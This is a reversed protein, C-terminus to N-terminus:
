AGPAAGGARERFDALLRLTVPGPRGAGIRHEVEGAAVAVVPVLERTTSTIFVEDAGLLDAPLLHAERVPLGARRALSLVVQRTVGELIGVELPPTVLGGGRVAFVNATTAETIRGAGDLMLAEYAARARAERLALVRSLYNGTKAAPDVSERPAHRAEVLAVKVGQRYAEPPPPVLEKAIIVVRGDQALAPDLGLEGSGRTVIVRVYSEPNGAAALTRRTEAAVRELSWPLSLAILEASRALRALHALIEFPEGRYTRMVEYVSDGYLFGRDFVSVVAQEPAVLRGDLNVVLGM